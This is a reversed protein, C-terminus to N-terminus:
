FLISVLDDAQEMRATRLIEVEFLIIFNRYMRKFEVVVAVENFAM